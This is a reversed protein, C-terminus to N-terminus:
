LNRSVRLDPNILASDSLFCISSGTLASKFWVSFSNVSENVAARFVAAAYRLQWSGAM